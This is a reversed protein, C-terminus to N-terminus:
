GLCLAMKHLQLHFVHDTGAAPPPVFKQGGHEQTLHEVVAQMAQPSANFTLTGAGHRAVHRPITEPQNIYEKLVPSLCLIDGPLM